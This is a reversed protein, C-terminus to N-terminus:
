KAVYVCQFKTQILYDIQCGKQRATKRQFFPNAFVIDEPRLGLLQIIEHHNNVVLNEFQLGMITEWGPLSNLSVNKFLGKDIKAKNPLIYKLYFRVYNDKLRFYSLKSVEGTKIDWTFDRAIFGGLVLDLLYESFTGTRTLGVEKALEEASEAGKVLREIIKKYIKSRKGFIDSFIHEFENVLAGEKIFCLRRINEEAALKPNILELYRPVGGTVALIKFKEYASILKKLKGWFLKCDKLPLEQLTMYLSPRGLFGTSSIINKEIWSSVSGCLVLILHPNKKFHLDWANKLKGLFDPDESGMWSIEDFLIICSGTKVKEALLLFLKSWDDATVEPLGTQQSLQGAFEDRQSQATTAPTPPIGSFSYFRGNRKAFEEVLRSKGIRRRGQLTVLSATRKTLLQQLEALEEARGIFEVM